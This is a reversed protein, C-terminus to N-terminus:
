RREKIAAAGLGYRSRLVGAHHRVHGALIYALARVSVSAGSATGTIHWAEPPLRRLVILNSQRLAAWEDVLEAVCCRDFTANATYAKEDFSPLPAQEGRSICFARYGFVREADGMHGVVERVSWKGPAYRYSEGDATVTSALARVDAPQRELAPLIDDESVLSVYTEYFPAYEAPTPRM